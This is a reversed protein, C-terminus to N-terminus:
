RLVSTRDILPVRSADAPLRLVMGVQLDDPSQLQDRNMQYVQQWRSARGLHEAAIVTLNDDRGVRYMPYGQTSFFIGAVDSVPRAAPVGSDSFAPSGGSTEPLAPESFTGPGTGAVSGTGGTFGPAGDTEPFTESRPGVAITGTSRLQSLPPTEITMGPRLAEPSAVVGKNHAALAAAYRGSGYIARSIDWFTDKEKVVYPDKGGGAPTSTGTSTGPSMSSPQRVMTVPTAPTSTEFANGNLGPDDLGPDSLGSGLRPPQFSDGSSITPLAGGRSSDGALGAPPLRTGEDFPVTGPNPTGPDTLSPSMARSPSSDGFPSASLDPTLGATSGTTEPLSQSDFAPTAPEAAGFLPEANGGTSEPLSSFPNASAATGAAAPQSGSDTRRDFLGAPRDGSSGGTTLASSATGGGTGSLTTGPTSAAGSGFLGDTPESALTASTSSSGPDPGFLPESQFDGGTGTGSGSNLGSGSAAPYPDSNFPSGGSIGTSTDSGGFVNRREAVMANDPSNFEPGTGGPQAGFDPEGQGFGVSSDAGIGNNQNVTLFPDDSNGSNGATLTESAPNQGDTGDSGTGPTGGGPAFPDGGTDEPSGLSAGPPTAALETDAEGPGTFKKVVVVAFVAVLVTIAAVGVIVEKTLKRKKEGFGWDASADGSEGVSDGIVPNELDSPNSDVTEDAYDEDDHTMADEGEHGDTASESGAHHNTVRNRNKRSM